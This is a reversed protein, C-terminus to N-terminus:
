PLFEMRISFGEVNNTAIDSRTIPATFAPNQITPDSALAAILRAAGDSRGSVTAVRNRLAIDMLHTDDPLIETLAALMGLTNGVRQRQAALVDGGAEADAVLKRLAEVERMAPRLAAIREEIRQIAASQNVFPIAVAAGALITCFSGALVAKRGRSDRRGGHRLPLLRPAGTPLLVELVTLPTGAQQLATIAAAVAVKPVLSLCVHLRGLAPDRRQASCTWFLDAAAFPTVRDMEYTLVQDLNREAALPLAVRQELLMGPPLRLVVTAPRPQSALAAQMAGIGADDLAFRGLAVKRRRRQLTLAVGPAPGDDLEAILPSRWRRDQATLRKPVLELLQGAWWNLFERIMAQEKAFLEPHVCSASLRM